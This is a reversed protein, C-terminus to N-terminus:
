DFRMLTKGSQYYKMVRAMKQKKTTEYSGFITSRISETQWLCWINTTVLLKYM